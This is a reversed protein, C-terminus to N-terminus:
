FYSKNCYITHKEKLIAAGRSKFNFNSHFIQEVWKGKLRGQDQNRIHTEQLFAIDTGLRGLHALVNGRKIAGNLGKCNWSVFQVSNKKVANVKMRAM